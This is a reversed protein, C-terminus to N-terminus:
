FRPSSSIDGYTVNNYNNESGINEPVIYFIKKKLLNSKKLSKLTLVHIMNQLQLLTQFGFKGGPNSFKPCAPCMHGAM